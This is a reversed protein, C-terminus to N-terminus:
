SRRRGKGGPEDDDDYDDDDDEYDEDEDEDEYDADDDDPEDAYGEDDPEDAYDDDDDDPEDAYDEDDSEDDDSEDDDSEDDSEDDYDEDEDDDYDKDDDEDEDSGDDTVKSDEIRGRWGELEDSHLMTDTMVHRRFNKLELRVRRGQARWLNGTREFLGQPYYELVVLVRTLDPGIEHFTVAGDVHGKPGSSQWVIRKDPVQDIITAQWHRHSWLIQAKFDLKTDQQQDVREVKKMFSPFDQFQTWTDYVASVPAGVDIQEVINTVKVRDGGKGGDGDGLGLKGKVSEAGGAVKDKLAQTGASLVAHMPSKGQALAKGAKGVPSSGAREAAGEIRETLGDVKGGLGSLARGTAATLLREAEARLQDLPLEDLVGRGADRRSTRHTGGEAV